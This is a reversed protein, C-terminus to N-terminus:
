DLHKQSTALHKQFTNLHKQFTNLNLPHSLEPTLETGTLEKDAGMCPRYTLITTEIWLIEQQVTRYLQSQDIKDMLQSCYEDITTANYHVLRSDTISLIEIM